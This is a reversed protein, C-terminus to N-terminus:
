PTWPLHQQGGGLDHGWSSVATSERAVRRHDDVTLGDTGDEVDFGAPSKVQFSPVVRLRETDDARDRM